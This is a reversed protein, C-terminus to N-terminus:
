LIKEVVAGVSPLGPKVDNEARNEVDAVAGEGREVGHARRGVNNQSLSPRAYGIAKSIHGRARLQGVRRIAGIERAVEHVEGDRPALHRGIDCVVGQGHNWSLFRMLVAALIKSWPTGLVTSGSPPLYSSSTSIGVSAASRRSACGLGPATISAQRAVAFSPPPPGKTKSVVSM